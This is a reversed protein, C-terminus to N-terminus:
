NSKSKNTVINSIENTGRQILQNMEKTLNTELIQAEFHNLILDIAHKLPHFYEACVDEDLSHIGASLIRYINYHSHISDPWYKKLYEIKQSTKYEQFKEYTINFASKNNDFTYKLIGEFVRRLYTFAPIYNNDTSFRIANYYDKERGIKKLLKSFEKTELKSFEHLPPYQGIKQLIMNDDKASIAFSVIYIKKCISCQFTKHFYKHHDDTLTSIRDRMHEDPPIYYLDSDIQEDFYSSLVKETISDPLELTTNIDYNMDRKCSPCYGYVQLKKTMFDILSQYENSVETVYEDREYTEQEHFIRESKTIEEKPTCDVNIEKYLPWSFILVDTSIDCLNM